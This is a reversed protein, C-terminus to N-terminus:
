SLSPFAPIIAMRARRGRGKTVYFLSDDQIGVLLTWVSRPVPPLLEFFTHMNNQVRDCRASQKILNTPVYVNGMEKAIGECTGGLM